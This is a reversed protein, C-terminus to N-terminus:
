EESPKEVNTDDSQQARFHRCHRRFVDVKQRHLEARHRRRALDELNRREECERRRRRELTARRREHLLQLVSAPFCGFQHEQENAEHIDAMLQNLLIDIDLLRKYITDRDM